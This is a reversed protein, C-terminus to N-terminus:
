IKKMRCIFFGDMNHKNPLIKLYGDKQTEKDIMVNDIIDLTFDKNDNLFNEIIDMNEEKFLTCTSYILIGGKKVYKSSNRLIKSQIKSLEVVDEEKKYKIEPKRRVIGMGSCPVDCVVYDFKEIYNEDLVEADALNTKLNNLGLRKAYTDILKIKHEYIDQSVVEGTNEMYEAIHTSKGGPAACVDLVKSNKKPNLVEAVLMSSVDQISIYGNKFLENKEINKFNKVLLAEKVVDVKKAEVGDKGLSDIIFNIYEDFSNFEKSKTKNVRVYLKSKESLAELLEETFEYGYEKVFRGVIWKNYSYKISLYDIGKANVVKINDKDRSINRLVANVFGSSKKDLRKVINVTENIAAYDKVSDLFMMQYVGIRLMIKVINSMKRVKIKSVKNIMHDIYKENEIVGYVIETILGKDINSINPNKLHNNIALNSYNKGVEIDILIKYAIDRSSM